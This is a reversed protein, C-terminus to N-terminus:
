LGRNAPIFPEVIVSYLWMTTLGAGVGAMVIMTPLFDSPQDFLSLALVIAGVMPAILSVIAGLGILINIATRTIINM